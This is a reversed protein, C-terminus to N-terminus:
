DDNTFFSGLLHLGLTISTIWLAVVKVSGSLTILVLCTGALTWLLSHIEKFFKM